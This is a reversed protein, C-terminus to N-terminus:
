VALAKEDSLVQVGDRSTWPSHSDGRSGKWPGSCVPRVAGASVASLSVWLDVGM